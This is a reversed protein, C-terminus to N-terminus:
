GLCFVNLSNCIINSTFSFYILTSLLVTLANTISVGVFALVILSTFVSLAHQFTSITRQVVSLPLVVFEASTAHEGPGFTHLVTPLPFITQHVSTSCKLPSIVPLIRTLIHLAQFFTFSRQLFLISTSITTTPFSTLPM